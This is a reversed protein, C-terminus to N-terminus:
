ESLSSTLLLPNWTTPRKAGLYSSCPHSVSWQFARSFLLLSVALLLLSVFLFLFCCFCYILHSTFCSAPQVSVILCSVFLLSSSCPPSILESECHRCRTHASKKIDRARSHICYENRKDFLFSALLKDSKPSTISVIHTM